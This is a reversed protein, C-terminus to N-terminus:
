FIQFGSEWRPSRDYSIFSVCSTGLRVSLVYHARFSNLSPSPTRRLAPASALTHLINPTLGLMVHLAFYFLHCNNRNLDFGLDSQYPVQGRSGEKDM